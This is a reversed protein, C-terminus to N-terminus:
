TKAEREGGRNERQHLVEFPGSPLAHTELTHRLDNSRNCPSDTPFDHSRPLTVWVGYIAKVPLRM